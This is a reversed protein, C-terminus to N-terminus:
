KQQQIIIVLTPVSRIRRACAQTLVFFFPSPATCFQRAFHCLAYCFRDPLLPNRYPTSAVWARRVTLTLSHSNGFTM